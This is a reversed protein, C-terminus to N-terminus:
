IEDGYVAAEADIAEQLADASVHAQM